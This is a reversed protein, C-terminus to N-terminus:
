KLYDTKFFTVNQNKLNRYDGSLDQASLVEYIFIWFQELDSTQLELAKRQFRVVSRGANLQHLYAMTLAICDQSEIIEDLYGGLKLRFKNHIAFFIGYSVMEYQQSKLGESILNESIPQIHNPKVKFADFVHEQLLRVLYPYILVLHHIKDLFLKLANPSMREKSIKKIAWNLIASNDNEDAMLEISSDLFAEVERNNLFESNDDNKMRQFQYHSLKRVWHKSLAIPLKSVRTKKHNLTLEFEKLLKSLDILFQQAKEYSECFCSYDDVHRIFKYDKKILAEDVVVLVIEAILNSSHPGILIGNTEQNKINRTAKDIKQFWKNSNAAKANLKGALAWPISHTYISPFCNSIDANVLFKSGILLDADDVTEDDEGEYNMEFLCDKDDMKRIHIKSVKYPNKSTYKKFHEILKPWNEELRKCLKSYPFPLPIGIARPVNINRISEYRVYDHGSNDYTPNSNIVHNYFASATFVPPLVNSFLGHGLLGRMLDNSSISKMEEFYTNLPFANKM